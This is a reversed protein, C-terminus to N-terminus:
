AAVAGTLHAGLHSEVSTLRARAARYTPSLSLDTKPREQTEVAIGAAGRGVSVLELEDLVKIARACVASPLCHPGDGALAAILDDGTARGAARLRRYISAVLPRLDLDRRAVALAFEVEAAGWALHVVGRADDEAPIGGLMATSDPLPGPDLAVIHTFRRGLEPEIELEDWSTVSPCASGDHGEVAVARVIGGIVEELVPRRREADACVIAVSEGSSIIEGAM